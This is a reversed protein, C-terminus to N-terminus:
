FQPNQEYPAAKGLPHLKFTRRMEKEKKQRKGLPMIFSVFRIPSHNDPRNWINFFAQVTRQSARLNEAERHTCEWVNHPRNKTDRVERMARVESSGLYDNIVRNAHAFDGKPEVFWQYHRDRRKPAKKGKTAVNEVEL